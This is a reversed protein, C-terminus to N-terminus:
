EDQVGKANLVFDIPKINLKKLDKVIRKYCPLTKDPIGITSWSDLGCYEGVQNDGAQTDRCSHTSYAHDHGYFKEQRKIIAFVMNDYGSSYIMGIPYLEPLGEAECERADKKNLYQKECIECEYKITKKVM